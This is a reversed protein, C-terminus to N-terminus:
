KLDGASGREGIGLLAWSDEMLRKWSWLYALGFVGAAATQNLVVFLDPLHQPPRAVWELGHLGAIFVYTTLSLTRIVPQQLRWPNYGVACNWTALLAFYQLALGDRRLLPWMSFASTNNVLMVWDWERRGEGTEYRCAILTLPLLPLLISKEHVQFSFLFFAMASLFLAHLLLPLTPSQGSTRQSATPTSLTSTRRQQGLWYGLLVFLVVIPAVAISTLLLALKALAGESFLDKLKIVVNVTCWFNAVKDEFLGRAFPFVRRAVQLLTDPTWLFPSLVVVTTAIVAFGLNVFLTVGQPRGLWVCKGLLYAFIAPAYYLAMQKFCLACVFLVAGIVDRGDEFCNIAWLTLGLMISNYQFHGNDILLLAPQLGIMLVASLVRRQVRASSRSGASGQVGYARTCYRVVASLYVLLDGVVVTARMWVKLGGEVELATMYANWAELTPASSDAPPRLTVYRATNRSLRACFGLFLSHYATLPPYDLGWYALDYFYWQGPRLSTTSSPSRQLFRWNGLWSSTLAIWHRQAELDGRMPPVLRGSYGGLGVAWKVLVIGFLTISLAYPRLTESKQLLKRNILNLLLNLNCRAFDGLAITQRGVFQAELIDDLRLKVPAKATAGHALTVEFIGVDDSSITLTVKDFQKPSYDDVSLLVGRDYLTQASYKYSGFRYSKGERELQREHSGQMSWPLVIRRKSKRQIGAMSQDIYVHYSNLQETYYQKKDQLGLLTAHMTAIERQRRIRRQHKSRMDHAIGNLISQYKDDKRVLGTQRLRLIDSLTAMKLQHFSMGFIDDTEEALPRGSPLRSKSGSHAIMDDVVSAWEDEDQVTVHCALVSELDSGTHVKLIALVRQKTQQLLQKSETEEDSANTGTALALTVENTQTGAAEVDGSGAPVSGLESIIERVPDTQHPAVSHIQDALVCHLAYIDNPSIYIVPMRGSAADHYQDTGFHVEADEVLTAKRIWELFTESSTRIFDNMPALHPQDSGFLRGVAIQNLLKCVESLNHRQEPPVVGDVLGFSEPALIAPQLFRYYVLHAVVRLCEREDETAYRQRLIRFVERAFFRVGYPLPVVSELLARLFSSTAKRLSILHQIFKSNTEPDALAHAFDVADPRKSPLGTRSEEMSILQRYIEVPDTTLDVEHRSAVTKVPGSLSQELFERFIPSRGYHALLQLFTFTGRAFSALCQQHQVEERVCETLLMLWLYEERSGQAFGFIVFATAELQKQTKERLSVRPLVAFLRALYRPQTQLHWFLRQYLELKRRTHHDLSGGAFPNDRFTGPSASRKGLTNNSRARQARAVEHTIKNKVLLAIKIDLDKVDEELDHLERIYGIIEKRLSESQLELLYDQHSDDLLHMYGQITDVSVNNGVLLEHYRRQQRQSRIVAQFRALASSNVELTRVLAAQRLRALAGRLVSQLFVVSRADSHVRRQWSRFLARHLHSRLLAQIGVVDPEVFDLAQRQSQVRRRTLAARVVSQLGGVSRVTDMKRLHQTRAQHNQRGLLGKLHAQLARVSKSMTRLSERNASLRTRALIGRCRAQLAVVPRRADALITVDVALRSRRLHGRILAQVGVLSPLLADLAEIRSYVEKRALAGRARAQLAAIAVGANKVAARREDAERKAKAIAALRTEEELAQRLRAQEVQVRREAEAAALRRRHEDRTANRSLMGRAFAQFQVIHQRQRRTQEAQRQRALDPDPSAEHRDLAQGIGRFNPMRIGAADLGKQAAGVEADTFDIQGVFDNIEGTLGRRALLHSLAHICYIVKPINKGDYLDVTEFRFIEPLKVENLLQFFININATHRFHRIPDNYIPGQCSPGGLSRALHALAYGNRLAKEFDAISESDWLPITPDARTTVHAEIWTRAEALHCLYEYAVLDRRQRDIAKIAQSPLLMTRSRPPTSSISGREGLALGGHSSQFVASPAFPSATDVPRSLRTRGPLGPVYADSVEFDDGDEAASLAPNYGLQPLTM